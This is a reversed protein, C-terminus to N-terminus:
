AGVQEPDRHRAWFSVISAAERRYATIDSHREFVAAAGAQLLAEREERELSPAMAVVLTGNENAAQVIHAIFDRTAGSHGKLDVIVLEPWARAADDNLLRVARRGNGLWRTRADVHSGLSRLLLRASHTDDDVLALVPRADHTANM